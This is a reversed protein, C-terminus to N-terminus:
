HDCGVFHFDHKRAVASASTFCGTEGSPGRISGRSSWIDTWYSIGVVRGSFTRVIFGNAERAIHMRLRWMGILWINANPYM